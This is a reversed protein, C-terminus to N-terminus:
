NKKLCKIRKNYTTSHNNNMSGGAFNLWGPWSPRVILRDMQAYTHCLMLLSKFAHEIKYFNKKM